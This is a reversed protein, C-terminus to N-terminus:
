KPRKLVFTDAIASYDQYGLRTLPRYTKIEFKGDRICDDRMHVAKVFGLVLHNNEGPLDIIENLCCELSAPANAVRVCDITECTAQEVGAHEFENMEKPLPASSKNVAEASALEAVNICFVGTAEINAVTDKSRIQDTKTLTSAFMVQPPDYATLNFFSYPALNRVGKGDQTSIWAIPRPTVIASLPNFRFPHGDKTNYFM